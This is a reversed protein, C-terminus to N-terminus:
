LCVPAVFLYKHYSYIYIQNYILIHLASVLTLASEAPASVSSMAAVALGNIRVTRPVTRSIFAKSSSALLGAFMVRSMM